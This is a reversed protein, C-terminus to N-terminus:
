PPPGFSRGFDSLLIQVGFYGIFQPEGDVGRGAMFLAILGRSLRYRGGLDLTTTSSSQPGLVHDRYLEVALDLREAFTHGAVAGFIEERPGRKPFFYGAEFDLDVEGVTKAAQVPMFLRPGPSGIGRQQASLASGTEIQPFLSVQWGGEGQDIFRWKVGPYANSWGAHSSQTSQDTEVVYPVEYTLQVRDGLGFNVDLQPLQYSSSARGVTQAAAVNIEWNGNGPTGPDNSLFPPGAQAIGSHPACTMLVGLCILMSARMCAPLALFENVASERVCQLRWM